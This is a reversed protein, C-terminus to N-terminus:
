SGAIDANEASGANKRSVGNPASGGPQEKASSHDTPDDNVHEIKTRVVIRRSDSDTTKGRHV